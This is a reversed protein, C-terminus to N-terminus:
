GPLRAGLPDLSRARALAQRREAGGTARALARWLEVDGPDREIGERLSAEADDPLGLIRESEGRL